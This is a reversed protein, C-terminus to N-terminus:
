RSSKDNRASVLNECLLLKLGQLSKRGKEALTSM